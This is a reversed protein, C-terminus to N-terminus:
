YLMQIEKLQFRQVGKEGIKIELFGEKSVGLIIGNFRQNSRDQFTSIIGKKFLHSEYEKKIVDRNNKNIRDLQLMIQRYLTDMVEDAIFHNGTQLLLSSAQPFTPFHHNNLNLGIGIIGTSIQNKQFQNEVLVGGVKKGDAMIDNPWKISVKPIGMIELGRQVGLSVAMNIYFPHSEFTTDFRKFISFALSKGIEFYWHSGMQGKGQTQHATCAITGDQLLAKKALSKLYENTSGIASIKIVKM